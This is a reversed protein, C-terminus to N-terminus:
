DKKMKDLIDELSYLGDSNTSLGDIQIPYKTPIFDSYSSQRMQTSSHYILFVSVFYKGNNDVWKEFVLKSGIPTKREITNPLSYNSVGLAALVSGLNSDHGCLFSFKRNPTNLEKAIENLLPAAVLKAVIPATLLLDGYWDKIESIQLWDNYNLKHGFSAKLDDSEEYYQLILADTASYAMKLSGTTQPEQDLRLWITDPGIIRCTDGKICALSELMDLVSCLSAYNSALRNQTNNLVCYYSSQSEKHMNIQEGNMEAIQQFATKCFEDSIRTIQPTFISDMVGVKCHHEVSVNAVPMFGSMFYHATAMTRQMSNAYVRVENSAPIEDESFLGEDMLWKHFYQGMMTEMVGGKLSLRSSSSTWAFWEHPTIRDIVSGKGALPSRINHRSLVVVESLSYRSHFEDSSPVQASVIGCLNIFLIFVIDRFQM